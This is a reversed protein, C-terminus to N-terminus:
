IRLRFLVDSFKDSSFNELARKQSEPPEFGVMFLLALSVVGYFFFYLSSFFFSLLARLLVIPYICVLM